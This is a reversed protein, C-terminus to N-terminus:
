LIRMPSSSIFQHVVHIFINSLGIDRLADVVFKWKLMDYVKELDVKIALWGKGSRKTRMTHVVKRALIINDGCNRHPIFSCQCPHILKKIVPRLRWALIKTITKYFVNCLSIPRWQKLNVVLDVKPILTIVVDNMSRLLSPDEFCQKIM